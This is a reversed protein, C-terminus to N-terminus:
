KRWIKVSELKLGYNIVWRGKLVELKEVDSESLASLHKQNFRLLYPSNCLFVTKGVFSKGESKEIFVFVPEQFEFNIQGANTGSTAMAIFPTKM